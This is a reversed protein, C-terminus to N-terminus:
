KAGGFDHGCGPRPFPSFELSTKGTKGAEGGAIRLCPFTTFSHTKGTKGAMHYGATKM